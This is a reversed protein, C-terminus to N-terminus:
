FTHPQCYIIIISVTVQIDELSIIVLKVEEESIISSFVLLYAHFASHCGVALSSSRSRHMPSNSVDVTIAQNIKKNGIKGISGKVM